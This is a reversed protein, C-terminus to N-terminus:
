LTLPLLVTQLEELSFEKQYFLRTGDENNVLLIAPLQGDWNNQFHSPWHPISDTSITYVQNVIDHERIFSNIMEPYISKTNIHRVDFDGENFNQYQLKKLIDITVKCSSCDLNWFNYIVLGSTDKQIKHLLTDFPLNLATIGNARALKMKDNDSLESEQLPKGHPMASEFSDVLTNSLSPNHQKESSCSYFLITCVVIYRIVKM